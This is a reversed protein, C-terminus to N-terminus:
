PEVLYRIHKGGDEEMAMAIATQELESPRSPMRWTCGRRKMCKELQKKVITNGRGPCEVSRQTIHYSPLEM